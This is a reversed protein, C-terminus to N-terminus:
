WKLFALPAEGRNVVRCLVLCRLVLFELFCYTTLREAPRAALGGQVEKESTKGSLLRKQESVCVFGKCTILKSFVSAVRCLRDTKTMM